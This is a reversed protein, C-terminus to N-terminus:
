RPSTHSRASPTWKIKDQDITRFIWLLVSLHEFLLALVFVGRYHEVGALAMAFAGSRVAMAGSLGAVVIRQMWCPASRYLICAGFLGCLHVALMTVNWDIM